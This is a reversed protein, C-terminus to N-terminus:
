TKKKFENKCIPCHIRITGKGKPVRLTQSCKSCKYYRHTKMDKLRNKKKYFWNKIPHWYRMFRENEQYRHSINKSLVRFCGIILPIYTVLSLVPKNIIGLVLSLLISLILLAMSLQDSGYRGYMFKRLWNM